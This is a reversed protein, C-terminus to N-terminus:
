GLPDRRSDDGPTGGRQEAAEDKLVDVVSCRVAGAPASGFPPIGHALRSQARQGGGHHLEAPRETRVQSCPQHHSGSLGARAVEGRTRPPGNGSWQGRGVRDERPVHRCRGARTVPAPARRNQPEWASSSRDVDHVWGHVSSSTRRRRPGSRPSRSVLPAPRFLRQRVTQTLRRILLNPTRTGGLACSGEGVSGWGSAGCGGPAPGEDNWARSHRLDHFRVM